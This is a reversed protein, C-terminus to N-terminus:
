YLQWSKSFLLLHFSNHRLAFLLYAGTCLYSFIHINFGEINDKKSLSICRPNGGTFVIVTFIMYISYVLFPLKVTKILLFSLLIYHLTGRTSEFKKFNNKLYLKLDSDFIRAFKLCIKTNIFMQVLKSSLFTIFSKADIDKLYLILSVTVYIGNEVMDATLM